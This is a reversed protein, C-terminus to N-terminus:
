GSNQTSKLIKPPPLLPCHTNPIHHSIIPCTNRLYACGRPCGGCAYSILVPKQSIQSAEGSQEKPFLLGLEREVEWRNRRTEMACVQNEQHTLVYVSKSTERWPYAELVARLVSIHAFIHLEVYRQFIAGVLLDILDFKTRKGCIYNLVCFCKSRTSCVM